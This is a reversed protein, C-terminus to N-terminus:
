KRIRAELAIFKLIEAHNNELAAQFFKPGSGPRNWNKAEMNEHVIPAYYATFGFTIMPGRPAHAVANALHAAVKSVHEAAMKAADKRKNDFTPNNGTLVVANSTVCFYSSRMNGTDVPIKPSVLHMDRRVKIQARILGKLTAGKIRAIEANLKAVVQDLGALSKYGTQWGFLYGQRPGRRAM